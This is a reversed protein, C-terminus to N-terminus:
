RTQGAPFNPTDTFHSGLCKLLLSGRTKSLLKTPFAKFCACYFMEEKTKEGARRLAKAHEAIDSPSGSARAKRELAQLLVDSM